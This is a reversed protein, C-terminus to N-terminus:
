NIERASKVRKRNHSIKMQTSPPDTPPIDAPKIHNAYNMLQTSMFAFLSTYVEAPTMVQEPYSEMNRLISLSALDKTLLDHRKRSDEVILFSAISQGNLLVSLKLTDSSNHSISFTFPMALRDYEELHPIPVPFLSKVRELEANSKEFELMLTRLNEAPAVMGTEIKSIDAVVNEMIKHLLLLKASNLKVDDDTLSIKGSSDTLANFVATFAHSIDSSLEQHHSGITSAVNLVLDSFRDDLTSLRNLIYYGGIAILLLAAM